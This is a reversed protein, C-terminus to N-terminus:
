SGYQCSAQRRIGCQWALWGVTPHSIDLMDWKSRLGTQNRRSQHTSTHESSIGKDITRCRLEDYSHEDPWIQGRSPTQQASPHRSPCRPRIHNQSKPDYFLIERHQIPVHCHSRLWRLTSLASYLHSRIFGTLSFWCWSMVFIPISNIDKGYIHYFPLFAIIKDGQGSPGGTPSLLYNEALHNQNINAVVNRHTIVVGKPLGTTGSSYILFATENVPDEAVSRPSTTQKDLIDRFHRVGYVRGQSKGGILIIRENGLGISQAAAQVTKLYPLQTMIAKASSVKLQKALEQVTYGPNAPSVIGGAWHTGWILSPTDICNSAFIVLTDGNKWQLASRLGQGFEIATQKVQAYTYFDQADGDRYIVIGYLLNSFEFTWHKLRFYACCVKIMKFPSPLVSLSSHGFILMPSQSVQSDPSSLCQPHKEGFHWRSATDSELLWSVMQAM